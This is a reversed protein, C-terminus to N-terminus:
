PIRSPSIRQRAVFGSSAGGGGRARCSCSEQGAALRSTARNEAGGGRAARADDQNVGGSRERVCVAGHAGAMAPVRSPIFAALPVAARWVGVVPRVQVCLRIGGARGGAGTERAGDDPERGAAELVGGAGGGPPRAGARDRVRGGARWPCQCSGPFLLRWDRM